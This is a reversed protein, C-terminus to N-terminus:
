LGDIHIELFYVVTNLIRIIALYGEGSPLGKLSRVMGDAGRAEVIISALLPPLRWWGVFVPVVEFPEECSFIAVELFLLLDIDGL